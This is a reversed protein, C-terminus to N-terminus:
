LTDYHREPEFPKWRWPSELWTLVAPTLSAPHPETPWQVEPRYCADCVPRHLELWGRPSAKCLNHPAPETGCNWCPEGAIRDLPLRYKRMAEIAQEMKWRTRPFRQIADGLWHEVTNLLEVAENTPLREAGPMNPGWSGPEGFTLKRETGDALTAIDAGEPYRWGTVDWVADLVSNGGANWPHHWRFDGIASEVFKLTAIGKTCRYCQGREHGDWDRYISTGNCHHCKVGIQLARAETAYDAAVFTKYAYIAKRGFGGARAHENLRSLASLVETPCCSTM